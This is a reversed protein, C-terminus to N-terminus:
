SATVVRFRLTCIRIHDASGFVLYASLCLLNPALFGISVSLRILLYTYTDKQVTTSLFVKSLGKSLLILGTLGLPFWEQINVPVVSALASVGISQGGSAFLWSMPFSGSSSFSQLCSSFPVVNSSIAPHCWWSWPCSNSCARPSPSPCPPRAHQSEHPRLSDSM